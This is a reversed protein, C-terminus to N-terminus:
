PFTCQVRFHHSQQSPIFNSNFHFIFHKTAPIFSFSLFKMRKNCPSPIFCTGHIFSFENWENVTASWTKRHCRGTICWHLQCSSTIELVINVEHHLLRRGTHRSKLRPTLQAQHLHFTSSETCTKNTPTNSSSPLTLSSLFQALEKKTTSKRSTGMLKGGPTQLFPFSVTQFLVSYTTKQGWSSQNVLNKDIFGYVLFPLLPVLLYIYLM